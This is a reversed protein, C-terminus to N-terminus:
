ESTRAPALANVYGRVPACGGNPNVPEDKEPEDRTFGFAVAQETVEFGDELLHEIIAEDGHPALCGALLITAKSPVVFFRQKFCVLEVPASDILTLRM